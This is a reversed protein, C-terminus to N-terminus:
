LALQVGGGGECVCVCVCMLIVKNEGGALDNKRHELCLQHM